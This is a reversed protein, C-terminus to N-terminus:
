ILFHVPSQTKKDFTDAHHCPLGGFAAKIAGLGYKACIKCVPSDKAARCMQLKEFNKQASLASTCGEAKHWPSQMSLGASNGHPSVSLRRPKQTEKVAHLAFVASPHCIRVIKPMNNKLCSTDSNKLATAASSIVQQATKETPLDFINQPVAGNFFRQLSTSGRHPAHQQTQFCPRRHCSPHFASVRQRSPILHACLLLLKSATDFIRRSSM